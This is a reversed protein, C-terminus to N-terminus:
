AATGLAQDRPCGEQTSAPLPCCVDGLQSVTGAGASPTMCHAWVAALGVCGGLGQQVRLCSKGDGKYISFFRLLMANYM